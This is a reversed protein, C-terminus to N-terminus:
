FKKAGISLEATKGDKSQECLMAPMLGCNKWAFAFVSNAGVAFLGIGVAVCGKLIYGQAKEGIVLGFDLTFLFIGYALHWATAGIGVIYLILVWWLSFDTSVIAFAKDANGAVATQTLGFTGFLGWRFHMLHFLLFAFLFVGTVRQFVYLWNRGYGYNSVNNRAQASIIIGYVSHFLLPLFIGGVEIFFLFPLHHIDGVADNFVKEGNMAKANTLMHVAFFLGLPVIGTIQHLKRLLFNNSIKISMDISDQKLHKNKIQL